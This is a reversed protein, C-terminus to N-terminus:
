AETVQKSTKTIIKMFYIPGISLFEVFVKPCDFISVEFELYENKTLTKKAVVLTRLGEAALKTCETSLWSSNLLKALAVDAGKM